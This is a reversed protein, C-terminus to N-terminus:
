RERAGGSGGRGPAQRAPAGRAPAARWRALAAEAAPGLAVASLERHTAEGACSRRAIRVELRDRPLAEPLRDAWEVAVLADGALLDRFGAADLEAASEVRYLDVHALRLGAPTAYESAIVFTPSAVRDPDLGLGEALGKVFVTKGAGLPGVLAVLLGRGCLGRALARAAARTAEPSPSTWSL